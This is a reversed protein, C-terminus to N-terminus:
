LSFLVSTNESVYDLLGNQARLVRNSREFLKWLRAIADQKEWCRTFSFKYVPRKLAILFIYHSWLTDKMSNKVWEFEYRIDILLWPRLCSEACRQNWEYTIHACLGNTIRWLKQDYTVSMVLHSLFVVNHRCFIYFKYQIQISRLSQVFM